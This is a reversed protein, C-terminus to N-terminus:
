AFVNRKFNIEKLNTLMHKYPYNTPWVGWTIRLDSFFFCQKSCIIMLLCCILSISSWLSCSLIYEFFCLVGSPTRIYNPGGINYKCDIIEKSFCLKNTRRKGKQKHFSIFNNSQFMFCTFDIWAKKKICTENSCQALGFLVLSNDSRICCFVKYLILL